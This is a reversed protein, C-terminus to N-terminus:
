REVAYWFVDFIKLVQWALAFLLKRARVVTILLDFVIRRRSECLETLFAFCDKILVLWCNWDNGFIAFVTWCILFYVIYLTVM